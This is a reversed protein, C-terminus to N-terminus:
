DGANRTILPKLEDKKIDKQLERVSGDAFAANFKQAGKMGLKPLDKAPDFPLEEPKTWPVSQAAEAVLFTNSLGDPFAFLKPGATGLRARDFPTNPGTFICFFTQGKKADRIPLAYTAPMQEVLKINHASDWPEDLKFQRYLNDQEIYPLIAVRWSLLPKGEKDCIAAGPLMGMTDHYSHMALGIQQLNHQGVVRNSAKEMELFVAGVTAEDTKLAISGTVANGRRQVDAAKLSAQVDKLAAILKPASEPTAHLERPLQGLLERAVYLVVRLSAEGDQAANADAFTFQWRAKTEQGLDLALALSEARMLPKFPLATLPLEELLAEIDPGHRREEVADPPPLVVFHEDATARRGQKEKGPGPASDPRTPKPQPPPGSEKKDLARGPAADAKPRLMLLAIVSEPSAGVVVQHKAAAWEVAISHPRPTRRGDISDIIGKLSRLHGVAYAQADIACLSLGGRREGQTALGFGKYKESRADAGVTAKLVEDRDYAKHTRVVAVPERAGSTPLLFTVREVDSVPLGFLTKADSLVRAVDKTLRPPLQKLPASELLDGPRLAVFSSGSDFVFDLDAPLKEPKAPARQDDGNTRPAALVGVVLAGLFLVGLWRRYM